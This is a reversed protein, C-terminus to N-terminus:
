GFCGINQFVMNTVFTTIFNEIMQNDLLFGVSKKCNIYMIGVAEPVDKNGIIEDYIIVIKFMSYLKLLTKLHKAPCNINNAAHLMIIQFPFWKM